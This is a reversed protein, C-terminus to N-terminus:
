NFAHTDQQTVAARGRFGKILTEELESQCGVREEM